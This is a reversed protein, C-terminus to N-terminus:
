YHFLLVAFRLTIQTLLHHRREALGVETPPTRVVNASSDKRADPSRLTSTTEIVVVVVVVGGNVTAVGDEQDDHEIPLLDEALTTTAKSSQATPLTM